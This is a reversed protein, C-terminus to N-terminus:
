ISFMAYFSYRSVVAAVLILIFVLTALNFGSLRSGEKKAASVIFCVAALAIVAAIVAPVASAGAMGFQVGQWVLVLAYVLYVAIGAGRARKGELLGKEFLCFLSFGLAIDGVFFTLWSAPGEWADVGLNIAYATSTVAMLGVGFVAAAIHLGRKNDKKVLAYIFDILVLLGFVISWYAEQCIMAAPNAMANMIREPHQLHLMSSLMGIGLLILCVLPFLWPRKGRDDKNFFLASALYSGAALGTCTTFVLLPFESIM